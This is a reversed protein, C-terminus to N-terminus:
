PLPQWVNPDKTFFLSPPAAELIRALDTGIQDAVGYGGAGVLTVNFLTSTTPAGRNARFLLRDTGVFGGAREEVPQGAPNLAATFTLRAPSGGPFPLRFLEQQFRPPDSVPAVLEPRSYLLASGDPAWAVPALAVVGCDLVTVAGTAVEVRVLGPQDVGAANKCEEPFQLTTALFRGDPSWAAPGFVFVRRNDPPNVATIPRTAGTAVNIATLERATPGGNGLASEIETGDPSWAPRMNFNGLDREAGTDLDQVILRVSNLPEPGFCTLLYALRRGDPSLAPFDRCAQGASDTKTLRRATAGTQDDADMRVVERANPFLATFVVQPRLLLGIVAGEELGLIGQFVATYRGQAEAVPTFPLPGSLDTPQDKADRSGRPGLTLPQAPGLPRRVGEPDDALLVISGDLAEDTLNRVRFFSGGGGSPDPARFVALRGRFFHNLLGASYGVARLLLPQIIEDYVLSNMSFTLEKGRAELHQDWFSASTVAPDLVENTIPDRFLRDYLIVVGSATGQLHEITFTKLRATYQDTRCPPQPVDRCGVPLNTGASLFNQSTFDALGKGDATTWFNRYTPFRPPPYQGFDLPPSPKLRDRFRAGKARTDIYLEYWSEEGTAAKGFSENDFPKCGAHRDNRVHQPQAMDQVLHTLQGLSRFLLATFKDRDARAPAVLSTLQNQRADLTTFFNDGRNRLGLAWDPAPAGLEIDFLGFLIPVHLGKGGRQVDFFHNLLRNISPQPNKPEPCKLIDPTPAFDDERIAGEIMWDRPFGKNEFLDLEGPPTASGPDFTDSTKIGLADLYAAVGSSADFARQTIDRHTRLEYADLRGAQNPLSLVVLVPAAFFRWKM